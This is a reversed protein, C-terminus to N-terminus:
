PQLAHRGIGQLKQLAIAERSIDALELTQDLAEADRQRRILRGDLADVHLAPQFAVAAVLTHRFGVIAPRQVQLLQFPPGNAGGDHACAALLAAGRLQQADRAVAEIALERWRRRSSSASLCRCQPPRMLTQRSTLYATRMNTRSRRTVTVATAASASPM